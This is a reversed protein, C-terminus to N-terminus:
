WLKINFNGSSYSLYQNDVPLNININPIDELKNLLSKRVM